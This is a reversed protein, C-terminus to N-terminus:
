FVSDTNFSNLLKIKVKATGKSKFELKEAAKESLDIIRRNESNSTKNKVFPGRDNIKVVVTKNNKINTVMVWSPIPLKPHAATMLESNFKEGSATSKGNFKKGYWSAIGIDEANSIANNKVIAKSQQYELLADGDVLELPQSKNISKIDQNTSEIEQLEQQFSKLIMNGESDQQQQFYHNGVKIKNKSISKALKKQNAIKKSIPNTKNAKNNIFHCSTSNLLILAIIFKFYRM